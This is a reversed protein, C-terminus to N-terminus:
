KLKGLIWEEGPCDKSRKNQKGNNWWKTGSHNPPITTLKGEEYLKKISNGLNTKHTDSRPPKAKGLLKESQKKKTEESPKWGNTKRTAWGKKFEEPDKKRKAASKSMKNKTEDSLTIGKRANSQAMKILSQKDCQKSLGLWAVKDEWRGYMKWLHRHVIAHDEITLEILNSLDDTGGQHKPIIHHIHTNYNLHGNEIAILETTYQKTM